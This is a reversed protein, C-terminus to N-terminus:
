ADFPEVGPPYYLKEVGKGPVMRLRHHAVASSLASPVGSKDGGIGAAVTTANSGPNAIVYSVVADETRRRKHWAKDGGGITLRRQVPDFTLKEEDFEVDRGTARFYREGADDKTLLWRVDAWDDLRTAGRAREQGQQQEARGTHTPLVSQGVGARGKIVDLTDLWVGVDSNSNEDVGVAARAFPDPIWLGVDHDALWASMWDEVKKATLPLRYGRLHLVSIADTNVIGSQELWENYQNQSLEYNFLAVRRDAHIDFRGLFPDRDVWCRALETVLTTKGAKYQATLLANGGMPLLDQVAFRTPLRPEALEATLTDRYPPERFELAAREAVYLRKAEERGRLVALEYQVRREHASLAADAAPTADAVLAEEGAPATETPAEPAAPSESPQAPVEGPEGADAFPDMPEGYGQSALDRAAAAFDGDHNLVAYAAFKSYPKETEFPTSSSFVYLNDGDNRGTTASIGIGKGPRRWTKASGLHGTFTWGHAPLLEEWTGRENYDDGPRLPDGPNRPRAEREVHEVEPMQDFTAAIAHLADREEITIVPIRAPAGEIRQWDKGEPHTRGGSPAVITFGGEGRTEILVKVKEDPNEALEQETAPRRALKLNHRPTETMETRYLWHFGGSPTQELYGTCLKLWLEAFGHEILAMGLPDYLDAARGEIEFMELNLSIKGCIIGFGDYEGRNLWAELVPWSPRQEQYSKWQGFPAKSGDASAPIVCCDADYWVRAAKILRNTDIM